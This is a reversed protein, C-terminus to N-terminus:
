KLGQTNLKKMMSAASRITKQLERNAQRISKNAEKISENISKNIMRATEVKVWNINSEKKAMQIQGGKKLTSGYTRQYTIPQPNTTYLGDILANINDAYIKNLEKVKAEYEIGADSTRFDPSMLYTTINNGYAAKQETSLQNWYGLQLNRLDQNLQNEIKANYIQYHRATKMKNLNDIDLSKKALYNEVNQWLKTTMQENLEDHYKQAAIYNQLNTNYTEYQRSINDHQTKQAETLSNYFVERDKSFSDQLAKVYNTGLNLRVATNYRADSSTDARNFLSNYAVNTLHTNDGTRVRYPLNYTKGVVPRFKIKNRALVTGIESAGLKILDLWNDNYSPNPITVPETPIKKQPGSKKDGSGDDDDDGPDQNQKELIGILGDSKTATGQSVYPNTALSPIDENNEKQKTLIGEIKDDGNLVSPNNTPNGVQDGTSSTNNTNLTDQTDPTYTYFWQEGEGLETQAADVPFIYGNKDVAFKYQDGVSTKLLNIYENKDEDTLWNVNGFVSMDHTIASFLNDKGGNYEGSSAQNTRLMYRQNAYADSIAKRIPDLGGVSEQYNGVETGYYAGNNAKHTPTWSSDLQSKALNQKAVWGNPGLWEDRNQNLLQLMGALQKSGITKYWSNIYKNWGTNYPDDFNPQVASSYGNGVTLYGGVQFKKLRKIIISNAFGLNGGYKKYLVENRSEIAQTLKDIDNKYMKIMSDLYDAEEKLEKFKEYDKKELAKMKRYNILPIRGLRNMEATYERGRATIEKHIDNLEAVRQDVVSQIQRREDMAQGRISKLHQYRQRLKVIEKSLEKIKNIHEVYKNGLQQRENKIQQLTQKNENVVERQNKIAENVKRVTDLTINIGETSLQSADSSLILNAAQEAFEEGQQELRSLEEESKRLKQKAQKQETRKKWAETKIDLNEESLQNRENQKEVQEKLAFDNESAARYKKMAEILEPTDQYYKLIDDFEADSSTRILDLGYSSMGANILEDEVTLAVERPTKAPPSPKQPEPITNFIDEPKSNKVLNYIGYILDLDSKSLKGEALLKRAENMIFSKQDSLTDLAEYKTRVEPNESEAYTLVKEVFGKLVKSMGPNTEWAGEAPSNNSLHEVMTQLDAQPSMLWKAYNGSNKAALFQSYASRLMESTVYNNPKGSNWQTVSDLSDINLLKAAAEVDSMGNLSEAVQKVEAAKSVANKYIPTQGEVDPQFIYGYDTLVEQMLENKGTADAQKYEPSEQIESIQQSLEKIEDIGGYLNKALNNVYREQKARMIAEDSFPVDFDDGLLSARRLQKGLWTNERSVYGGEISGHQVAREFLRGPAWTETLPDVPQNWKVPVSKGTVVQNQKNFIQVDKIEIKPEGEGLKSNYEEVIRRKIDETATSTRNKRPGKTITLTEPANDKIQYKIEATESAKNTFSKVGKNVKNKASKFGMKAGILTRGIFALNTLDQSNIESIRMNSIKDLTEMISRRSRDDSLIDYTWLLGAIKPVMPVIKALAPAIQGAKVPNILAIAQVGAIEADRKLTPWLEQKGQMVDLLDAGIYGALSVGSVAASALNLGKPFLMFAGTLDLISAGLRVGDAVTFEEPYSYHEPQQTQQAQQVQQVQGNIQQPQEVAQKPVELPTIIKNNAQSQYTDFISGGVSLRPLKGGLKYGVIDYKIEDLPHNQRKIVKQIFGPAIYKVSGDSKLYKKQFEEKTINSIFVFENNGRVWTFVVHGEKNVYLSFRTGFWTRPNKQTNIANYKYQDEPKLSLFQMSVGKLIDEFRRPDYNSLRIKGLLQWYQDMAERSSFAHSTAFPIPEGTDEDKTLSTPIILDLAQNLQEATLVTQKKQDYYYNGLKAIQNGSKDYAYYDIGVKKLSVEIPKRETPKKVFFRKGEHSLPGKTLAYVHYGSNLSFYNTLNELYGNYGEWSYWNKQIKERGYRPQLIQAFQQGLTGINSIDDLLTVFQNTSSDFYQTNQTSLPDFNRLIGNAEIDKKLAELAASDAEPNQSQGQDNDANDANNQNPTNADIYEQTATTFIANIDNQDEPYLESIDVGLSTVLPLLSEDFTDLGKIQEAFERMKKTYERYAQPNNIEGEFSYKKRYNSDNDIKDAEELIANYLAEKRNSVGRLKTTEDMPDLAAWSKFLDEWGYTSDKHFYNDRIINKLDFTYKTKDLVKAEWPRIYGRQKALEFMDMVRVSQNNFYDQSTKPNEILMDINYYKGSSDLIHKGDSDFRMKGSDLGNAYIDAVQNFLENQQEDNGVFDLSYSDRLNQNKFIRVIDSKLYKNGGIDILQEYEQTIGGSKYKRVQAMNYVFLLM